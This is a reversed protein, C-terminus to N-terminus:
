FINIPVKFKNRSRGRERNKKVKGTLVIKVRGRGVYRKQREHTEGRVRCARHQCDPSCLNLLLYCSAAASSCHLVLCGVYRRNGLRKQATRCPAVLGGLLRSLSLAVCVLGYLFWSKYVNVCAYIHLIMFDPSYMACMCVAKHQGTLTRCKTKCYFLM